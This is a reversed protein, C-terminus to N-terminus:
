ELQRGACKLQTWGDSADPTDPNITAKRARRCSPCRKPQALGKSAFFRQEGAEWIFEDGCEACPIFRDQFRGANAETQLM